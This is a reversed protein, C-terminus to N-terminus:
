KSEGLATGVVPVALRYVWGRAEVAFTVVGRHEGASDLRLRVRYGAGEGTPEVSVGAGEATVSEIGFPTDTLSRLSVVEEVVDGVARAPYLVEPPEARVDPVVRGTFRITKPPLEIGEAAVPHLTVAWAADGPGFSVGDKATLEVIFRDPQDRDATVDAAIDSRDVVARLSQIPVKPVVVVSRPLLAPAFESHTGLPVEDPVDLARRVRGSLKWEPSKWVKGPVAKIIPMLVVSFPRVDAEATEGPRPRLDLTLRLDVRGGADLTFQQPEVTLCQCSGAVGTVVVREPGCNEVPLTWEFRDTEWAEAFNLKETPVNLTPISPSVQRIREQSRILQHALTGAVVAGATAPVGLILLLVSQRM